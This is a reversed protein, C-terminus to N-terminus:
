KRIHWPSLVGPRKRTPLCRTPAEQCPATIASIHAGSACVMVSKELHLVASGHRPQIGLLPKANIRPKIWAEHGLQNTTSAGAHVVSSQNGDLWPFPRPLGADPPHPNRNIVNEVIQGGSHGVLFDKFLKRVQAFLVNQGAQAVRSVPLSM